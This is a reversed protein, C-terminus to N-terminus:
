ADPQRPAPPIAPGDAAFAEPRTAELVEGWRHLRTHVLDLLAAQNHNQRFPETVLARALNVLAVLDDRHVREPGIGGEPTRNHGQETALCLATGRYGYATFSTVETGGGSGLKRQFRFGAHQEALAEAVTRAHHTLLQDYIINRDGTRVIVGDGCAMQKRARPMEITVVHRPLRFSKAALMATAGVYGVEEARTLVADFPLPWRGRCAEELLFVILAAGLNDDLARGELHAKRLRMPPLDLMGVTGPEIRGRHKLMAVRGRRRKRVREVTAPFGRHEASPFFRLRTGALGTPVGGLIWARGDGLYQFGPHDLHAQFAVQARPAGSADPPRYRVHLNGFRDQDVSLRKRRGLRRTLAEILFREGFPATPIRLVSALTAELRQSWDLYRPM